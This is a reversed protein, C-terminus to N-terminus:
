FIRMIHVSLWFFQSIHLFLKKKAYKVKKLFMRLVHVNYEFIATHAAFVTKYATKVFQRLHLSFLERDHQERERCSVAIPGLLPLFIFALFHM